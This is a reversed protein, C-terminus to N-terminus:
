LCRTRQNDYMYMRTSHENDYMDMRVSAYENVYMNM